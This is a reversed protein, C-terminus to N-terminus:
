DTYAPVYQTGNWVDLRDRMAPGDISREAEKMADDHDTAGIMVPGLEGRYRYSTLHYPACPLDSLDALAIDLRAKESSVNWRRNYYDQQAEPIDSPKEFGCRNAFAIQAAQILAAGRALAAFPQPNM